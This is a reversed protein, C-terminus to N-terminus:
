VWLYPMHRNCNYFVYKTICAEIYFFSIIFFIVKLSNYLSNYPWKRSKTIATQLCRRWRYRYNWPAQHRQWQRRRWQRQYHSVNHESIKFSNNTWRLSQQHRDCIPLTTLKRHKTTIALAGKKANLAVAAKLWNPRDCKHTNLENKIKYTTSHTNQTNRPRYAHRTTRQTKSDTYKIRPYTCYSRTCM